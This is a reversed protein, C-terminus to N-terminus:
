VPWGEHRMEEDTMPSLVSKGYHGKGNWDGAVRPGAGSVGPIRAVPRGHRNVVIDTGAAAESLLASLHAKAEARTVSRDM